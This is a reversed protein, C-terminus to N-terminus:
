FRDLRILKKRQHFIHQRLRRFASPFLRGTLPRKFFGDQRCAEKRDRSPLMRL